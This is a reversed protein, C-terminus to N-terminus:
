KIVNFFRIDPKSIVGAKEMISKLEPNSLFKNAADMDTVEAAVTVMNANDMATFIKMVKIGAQNRMAEGSDFAEKWVKFDKVEHTIMMVVPKGDGNASTFALTTLLALAAISAFFLKKM